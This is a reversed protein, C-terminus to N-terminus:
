LLPPVAEATAAKEAGSEIADAVRNWVAHGEIDGKKYLKDATKRAYQCASRGHRARLYVAYIEVGEERTPMWM